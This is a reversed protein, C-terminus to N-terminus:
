KRNRGNNKKTPKPTKDSKTSIQKGLKEHGQRDLAMALAGIQRMRKKLSKLYVQMELTDNTIYYGQSTALVCKVIGNIRIYHLISRVLGQGLKIGHHKYISNVIEPCSVFRMKSTAKKLKQVVLPVIHVKHFHTVMPVRIIAEIRDKKTKGPKKRVQSKNHKLVKKASPRKITIKKQTIRKPIVKGTKKSTGM